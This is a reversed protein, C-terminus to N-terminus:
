KSENYIEKKYMNKYKEPNDCVIFFLYPYDIELVSKNLLDYQDVGYSIFQSKKSDIHNNIYYKLNDLVNKDYIKAILLERVDMTETTYYYVMDDIEIDAINNKFNESNKDLLLEGSFDDSIKRGLTYISKSKDVKPNKGYIFILSSIFIMVIILLFAYLNNINFKKEVIADEM